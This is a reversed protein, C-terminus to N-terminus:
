EQRSGGDGSLGSSFSRTNGAKNGERVRQREKRGRVCIPRENITTPNEDGIQTEVDGFPGSCKNPRTTDVGAARQDQQESAVVEDPLECIM